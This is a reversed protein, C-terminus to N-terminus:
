RLSVETRRSEARLPVWARITTGQGADSEVAFEGGLLRVRERMTALGLSPRERERELDFGVGDDRVILLLGDRAAELQVESASARAHRSVNELAEQTVRFLGLGAEHPIEQPLTGITVGVPLAQQESVRECEAQLARALGLRDLLAPHLRYALRDVDEGVRVLEAHVARMTSAHVRPDPSSQHQGADIALRALRQTVDDNLERAVRAREADQAELLRRSFERDMQEIRIRETIDRVFHTYMGRDPIERVEVDIRFTSGNQRRGTGGVILMSVPQGIAQWAAYGFMKEASPNMSEIFGARNVTLIGDIAIDLIGQLRESSQRLLQEARRRRVLNFLLAAVLLAGLLWLAGGVVIYNQYRGWLTLGRFKVTSGPPLRAEDIDWRILERSDFVPPELSQIPIEISRPSEGRLLRLAAEAANTSLVDISMLRGGVVGSGMQGEYSGFIPANAAAHLQTLGSQEVLPVNKSDVSLLFYLIVSAPPLASSRQLIESFSMGDSWIFTLRDEFREFEAALRRRWFRELPSNGLVIFANRTQPLIRLASDVVAAPDHAVRVVAESDSLAFGELHVVDVSALLLPTEPFIRERNKHAFSAAPGGISVVLDLRKEGFMALVFDAIPGEPPREAFRAPQLSVEYFEIPEASQRSVEGRFRATFHDFPPFQGDFSHLLLVRKPERAALGTSGGVLLCATWALVLLWRLRTM